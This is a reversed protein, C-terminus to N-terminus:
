NENKGGTLRFFATELYYVETKKGKSHRAVLGDLFASIEKRIPGLSRPDIAFGVGTFEREPVPQTDIAEIAKGLIQKHYSRIAESPVGDPSLVYDRVVEFRAGKREILGVRELREVALQAEAKSIGLRRAIWFPNPRFDDCESLTLIAFCYWESVVHFMDMTLQRSSTEAEHLPSLLDESGESAGMRSSMLRGKEVQSLALLHRTESPSLGLSKAVRLASRLSLARKGRLVESLEGASLGLQRAFARQSYRPNSKMRRTLEDGLFTRASTTEMLLPM